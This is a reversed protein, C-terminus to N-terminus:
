QKIIDVQKIPKDTEFMLEYYQENKQQDVTLKAGKYIVSLKNSNLFNAMTEIEIREGNLSYVDPLWMPSTVKIELHEKKDYKEFSYFLNAISLGVIISAIVIKLAESNM